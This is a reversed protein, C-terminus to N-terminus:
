GIDIFDHDPGSGARQDAQVRKLLSPSVNWKEGSSTVVTVTKRNIRSVTGRVLRGDNTGFEVINGISFDLMEKFSRSADLLKLRAVIRRNLNLLEEYTLTEIDIKRNM